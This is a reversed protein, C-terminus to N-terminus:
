VIGGLQYDVVSAGMEGAATCRRSTTESNVGYFFLARTRM